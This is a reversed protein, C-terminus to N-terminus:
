QDAGGRGHPCVDLSGAVVEPAAPVAGGSEWRPQGSWAAAVAAAPSPAAGAPPTIGPPRVGRSPLPALACLAARDGGAGLPWDTGGRWWPGGSGPLRTALPCPM